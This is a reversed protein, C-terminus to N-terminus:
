LGCRSPAGGGAGLKTWLEDIEQQTECAVFFSIAESFENLV